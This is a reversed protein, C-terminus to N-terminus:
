LDPPQCLNFLIYPKTNYQLFVSTLPQFVSYQKDLYYTKTEYKVPYSPYVEHIKCLYFSIYDIYALILM